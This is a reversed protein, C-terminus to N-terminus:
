EESISSGKEHITGTSDSKESNNTGAENTEIDGVDLLLMNLILGLTTNFKDNKRLTIMSLEPSKLIEYDYQLRPIDNEDVKFRVTTYRYVVGKFPDILLEIPVTSGETKSNWLDDRFTYDVGLEM